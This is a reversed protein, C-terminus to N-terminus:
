PPAWLRSRRRELACDTSVCAFALYAMLRCGLSLSLWSKSSSLTGFAWWAPGLPEHASMLMEEAAENWWLSLLRGDLERHRTGGGVVSLLERSRESSLPYLECEDSEVGDVGLLMEARRLDARLMEAIFSVLLLDNETSALEDPTPPPTAEVEGGQPTLDCALDNMFQLDSSWSEEAAIAATLSSDATLAARSFRCM